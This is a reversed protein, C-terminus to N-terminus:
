RPVYTFYRVQIPVQSAAISIYIKYYFLVRISLKLKKTQLCALPDTCQIQRFLNPLIAAVGVLLLLM